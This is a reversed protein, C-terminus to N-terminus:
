KKVVDQLIDSLTDILKDKNFNEEFYKRANNGKEERNEDNIIEFIKESIKNADAEVYYGAGAEETIKKAEGNMVCLIPLKCAMYMQMKQPLVIKSLINEELILIGCTASSLYRPIEREPKRPLFYVNSLEEKEVREKLHQLSTGDGILYYGIEKNDITIKATDLVLDLGQAKGINGAFVFRYPTKYEEVTENSVGYDNAFQPWFVLKDEAIKRRKFEECFSKSSCLLKDANKYIYDSLKRLPKIILPSHVNMVCEFCEPWMDQVNIVYPMGRKKKLKTAPLCATIPSVEFCYILDYEKYHKKLWKYTKSFFSYYCLALNVKGTKRPRAKVRVVNVGDINTEYLIDFGYGDFIEGMPYNPYGTLVTVDFGSNKLETAVTNISFTEPYFYQSLILIKM